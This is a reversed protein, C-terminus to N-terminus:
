ADDDTWVTGDLTQVADGVAAQFEDVPTTRVSTPMPGYDYWAVAFRVVRSRLRGTAADTHYTGFVHHVGCVLVDGFDDHRYITNETLQM